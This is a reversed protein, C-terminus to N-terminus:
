HRSSAVLATCVNIRVVFKESVMASCYLAVVRFINCSGVIYLLLLCVFVPFLLECYYRM